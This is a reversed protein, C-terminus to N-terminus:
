GATEAILEPASTGTDGMPIIPAGDGGGDGARAVGEVPLIWFGVRLEL